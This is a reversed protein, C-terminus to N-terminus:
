ENQIIMFSYVYLLSKFSLYSVHINDFKFEFNATLSKHSIFICEDQAVVQNNLRLYKM